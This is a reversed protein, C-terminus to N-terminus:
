SYRLSSVSASMEEKRPFPPAGAEAGAVSLPPPEAPLIRHPRLGDLSPSPSGPEPPSDGREDLADGGSLMARQPNFTRVELCTAVRRTPDGVHTELIAHRCTRTDVYWRLVDLCLAVAYECADDAADGEVARVVGDALRSHLLDEVHHDLDPLRHPLALGVLREGEVQPM